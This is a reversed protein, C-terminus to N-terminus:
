SVYACIAYAQLSWPGVLSDDDEYAAVRWLDTGNQGGNPAPFSSTVSIESWNGSAVGVYYGGGLVRKGAPCRAWAAKSGNEDPGWVVGAVYEWGSV